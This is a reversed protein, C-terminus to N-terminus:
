SRTKKKKDMKMKERWNGTEVLAAQGLRCGLQLQLLLELVGLVYRRGGAPWHTALRAWPRPPAGVCRPGGQLISGPGPFLAAPFQGSSSSRPPRRRWVAPSM